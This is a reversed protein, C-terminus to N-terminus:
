HDSFRSGSYLDSETVNDCPSKDFSWYNSARKLEETVEPSALHNSNGVRIYVSKELGKDSLYFPGHAHEIQLAIVSKNDADIVSIDPILQPKVRNSISNALQEQMKSPNQVGIITGDDDVGILIIGGATNAFAIISKLVSILSDTNRKYELTKGEGFQSLKLIDM